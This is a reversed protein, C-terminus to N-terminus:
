GNPVRLTQGVRIVDSNMNNIERLRNVSIGHRTAIGSLTDGTRVTYSDFSNANRRQTYVWTGPPPNDDFYDKIGDFVARALRQRYAQSGLNAEDRPNSMFGAEVLISPVDPSKLVAFGAQEVRRRHLNTVQGMRQLVQEGISLGEQMSHTMALDVIVERVMADMDQMDVGSVGGVRDAQNESSALFEAMTSTAGGDSLAYVSAGSPQSSTFADAHVSVFFDANAERALQRRRVLSIYYDGTRVMFPTYGEADEILREMERSIAMAVHKEYTGRVGIAGPDEGGHGADIAIVIDRQGDTEARRVERAAEITPSTRDDRQLDVVLRHGYQENPQLVFSRPTLESDLDLVVRLSGDDRQASRISSVGSDDLELDAYSGGLTTGTMDVVVRDPNSLTFVRHDVENSLDFVIRTHDPAQWLRVNTVSNALAAASFVLLVLVVSLRKMM